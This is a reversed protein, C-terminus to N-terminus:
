AHKEMSLHSSEEKHKSSAGFSSVTKVKNVAIIHKKEMAHNAISISRRSKGYQAVSDCLTTTANAHEMM